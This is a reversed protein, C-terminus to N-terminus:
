AACACARPSSRPKSPGSGWSRRPPSWWSRGPTPAAARLSAIASLIQVTKGLGMDDALIGGLGAGLRSTLWAHGARQYPRLVRALSPVPAHGTEAAEGRLAAVRTRWAKSASVSDAHEEVLAVAGAQVSTLRLGEGTWGTLARAEDLLAEMARIRPGDLRVWVGDVEVYEEGRAIAM